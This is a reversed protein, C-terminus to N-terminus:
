EFWNYRHHVFRFSKTKKDWGFVFAHQGIRFGFGNAREDNIRVFRKFNKEQEISINTSLKM